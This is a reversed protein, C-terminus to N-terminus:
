EPSELAEADPGESGRPPPDGEQEDEIPLLIRKRGRPVWGPSLRNRDDEAPDEPGQGSSEKIPRAEIAAVGKKKEM